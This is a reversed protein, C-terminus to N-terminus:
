LSRSRFCTLTRSVCEFLYYRVCVFALEHFVTCSSPLIGSDVLWGIRYVPRLSAFSRFHGRPRCYRFYCATVCVRSRVVTASWVCSLVGIAYLSPISRLFIVCVAFAACARYNDAPRVRVFTWFWFFFFYKGCLGGRDVARAVPHADGTPTFFFPTGVTTKAFWRREDRHPV